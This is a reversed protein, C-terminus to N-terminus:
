FFFFCCGSCYVRVVFTNLHCRSPSVTLGHEDGLAPAEGRQGKVERVRRGGGQSLDGWLQPLQRLLRQGSSLWCHSGPSRQCLHGVRVWPPPPPHPPHPHRPPRPVSPMAAPTPPPLAPPFDLRVSHQHLARRPKAMERDPPSQPDKKVWFLKKIWFGIM